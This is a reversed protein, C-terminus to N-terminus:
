MAGEDGELLEVEVVTGFTNVNKAFEEVMNGGWFVFGCLRCCHGECQPDM